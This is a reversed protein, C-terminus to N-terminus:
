DSKLTNNDYQNIYHMQCVRKINRIFEYEKKYKLFCKLHKIYLLSGSTHEIIVLKNKLIPNKCTSCYTNSNAKTIRINSM